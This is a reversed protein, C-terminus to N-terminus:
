QLSWVMSVVMQVGHLLLTVGKGEKLFFIFAKLSSLLPCIVNVQIGGSEVGMFGRLIGLLHVGPLTLVQHDLWLWWKLGILVLWTSVSPASKVFTFLMLMMFHMGWFAHSYDPAMHENQQCCTGWEKGFWDSQDLSSQYPSFALALSCFGKKSNSVGLILAPFGVMSKTPERGKWLKFICGSLISLFASPTEVVGIGGNSYPATPVAGFSPM